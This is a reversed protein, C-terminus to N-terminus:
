FKRGVNSYHHHKAVLQIIDMKKLYYDGINGNPNEPNQQPIQWAAAPFNASDHPRGEIMFASPPVLGDSSNFGSKQGMSAFSSGQSSAFGSCSNHSSSYDSVHNSHGHIADSFQLSQHLAADGLHLSQISAHGAAQPWHNFPTQHASRRPMPDSFSSKASRNMSHASRNMDSLPSHGFQARQQMHHFDNQQALPLIGFSAHLPASGPVRYQAQANLTPGMFQPNVERFQHQLKQQERHIMTQIPEPELSFDSARPDVPSSSSNFASELQSGGRHQWSDNQISEDPLSNLLDTSGGSDASPLSSNMSKIFSSHKAIASAENEMEKKERWTKVERRYRIMDVDAYHDFITKNKPSITKWQDAIARALDGFSIRGHTKRHRRKERSKSLIAEISRAIEEPPAEETCGEVIRSRQHETNVYLLLVDTLRM